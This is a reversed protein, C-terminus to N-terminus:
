KFVGKKFRKRNKTKCDLDEIDFEKNIAKIIDLWVRDFRNRIEGNKKRNVLMLTIKSVEDGKSTWKIFGYHRKNRDSRGVLQYGNTATM